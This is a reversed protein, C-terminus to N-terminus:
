RAPTTRHAARLYQPPWPVIADLKDAAHLAWYPDRLLERALLVVDAQANAIIADAQQAETILGVAGTAVGAERRIREAFPVQYGPGIVIQQDHVAGGSSCDVLDVGHAKLLRALEVAQDIDWGGEKWDTASIRVFLPLRDPWVARVGDVIELCLRARNGFAGGYEDDRTNVLPSLFEHILYGHAGHIELVDFGAALARQAASRFSAVVKGIEAVSLPCPVPYNEAFPESSPGVPQWGGQERGLGGGGEWPRAVSAKRGAHALQIGALTKQTHIFRVIRALGSVHGDDYIGLDHPSIRGIDAVATAETMVLAAGGVARSGLHVLHWDNSFGDVSSYECMPSVVIRNSLTLSRFTIPDFLHPM